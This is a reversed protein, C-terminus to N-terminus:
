KFLLSYYEEPSKVLKLAEQVQPDNRVTRDILLRDPLARSALAFIVDEQILKRHSPSDLDRVFEELVGRELRAVEGAAESLGALKLESEVTKLQQGYTVGKLVDGSFFEDIAFKKFDSYVKAVDSDSLGSIPSSPDLVFYEFGSLM